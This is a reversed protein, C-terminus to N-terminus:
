CAFWTRWGIRRLRGILFDFTRASAMYGHQHQDSCLVTPVIAGVLRILKVEGGWHAELSGTGGKGLSARLCGWLGKRQPTTGRCFRGELKM